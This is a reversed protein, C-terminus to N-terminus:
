AAIRAQFCFAWTQQHILRLDCSRVDPQAASNAVPPARAARGRTGTKLRPRATRAGSKVNLDRQIGFKEIFKRLTASM